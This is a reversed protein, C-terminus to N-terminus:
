VAEETDGDGGQEASKKVKSWDIFEAVYGFRRLSLVLLIVYGTGIASMTQPILKLPSTMNSFYTHTAFLVLLVAVYIWALRNRKKSDQQNLLAMAVKTRILETPEM